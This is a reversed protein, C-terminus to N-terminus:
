GAYSCRGYGKEVQTAVMEDETSTGGVFDLDGDGDVDFLEVSVRGRRTTTRITGRAATAPGVGENEYM